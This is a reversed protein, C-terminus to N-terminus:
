EVKMEFKTNLRNMEIRDLFLSVSFLFSLFFFFFCFDNVDIIHIYNEFDM